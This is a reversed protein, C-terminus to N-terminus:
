ELVSSPPRRMCCNPRRVNQLMSRFINQQRRKNKKGHGPSDVGSVSKRFSTQVILKREQEKIKCQLHSQIAFGLSEPDVSAGYVEWTMGQEDWVVDHVGKEKQKQDDDKDKREPEIKQKGSKKEKKPAKGGGKAKQKPSEAKKETVAPKSTTNTATTTPLAKSAGSTVTVKSLAANKSDVCGSKTAGATKPATVSKLSPAEAPATKASSKQVGTKVQFDGTKEAEKPNSHEINIQYVPQTNCLTSGPEKPKAGLRKDQQQSLTESHSVVGANQNPCMEAEVTLRESRTDTSASTSSMSMQHLAVGRDEQYVVALSLTAERPVAGDSPRHPVAFPLLSPSTAVAKSCMNAVAQVEMDHCRRVPTSSPSLTMTSAEKFLKCHQPGEHVATNTKSAEVSVQGDAPMNQTAQPLTSPDKQSSVPQHKDSSVTPKKVPPFDKEPLTSCSIKNTSEAQADKSMSPPTTGSLTATEKSQNPKPTEQLSVSSQSCRRNHDPEQYKQPEATDKNKPSLIIGKNDQQPESTTHRKECANLNKNNPSVNKNSDERAAASSTLKACKEEAASPGKMRCANTQMDVKTASLASLKDAKCIDKENAPSLMKVNANSDRQDGGAVGVSQGTLSQDQILQNGGTVLESKIQNDNTPLPKDSVTSNVPEGGKSATKQTTNAPSNTLSSNDQKHDPSTHTPKSSVQSLKLNPEKTWNANPEKNGLTDVVALQPVMQVTVTRKPNTGM